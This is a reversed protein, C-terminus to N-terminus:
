ITPSEFKFKPLWLDVDREKLKACETLLKTDLKSELAPLGNTEAPILVLFQLENGTYPLAVATFGDRNAYRFQERKRMMPVDVAKSGRAHFPAPKTSGADFRWLWAAKLYLANALVLRTDRSVGNIPILDRIRNRTQDAIWQN